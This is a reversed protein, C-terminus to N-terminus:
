RDRVDFAVLYADREWQEVTASVQEGYKRYLAQAAVRREEPEILPLRARVAVVEDHVRVTADPSAILNRVWDSSDHGGSIMWIRAGDSAFWIEIEHPRGTHRGTTVLYAYDEDRGSELM